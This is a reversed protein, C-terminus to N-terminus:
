LHDTAPPSPHVNPLQPVEDGNGLQAMEALGRLPQVDDLGRDTLLDGPELTFQAQGQEVAGVPLDREGVPLCEQRVGAPHQSGQVAGGVGRSVEGGAGCPQQPDAAALAEARAQVLDQGGESLLM